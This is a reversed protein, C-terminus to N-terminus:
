GGELVHAAMHVHKHDAAEAECFAGLLADDGLLFELVAGLFVPDSARARLEETGCGSINLFRALDGPSNVLWGLAKLGLTEAADRTMSLSM